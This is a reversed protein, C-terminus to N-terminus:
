IPPPPKPENLISYFIVIKYIDTGPSAPQPFFPTALEDLNAHPFPPKFLCLQASTHVCLFPTLEVWKMFQTSLTNQKLHESKQTYQPYRLTHIIHPFPIIKM